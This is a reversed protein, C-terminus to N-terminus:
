FCTADFEVKIIDRLQLLEWGVTKQVKVLFNRSDLGTVIGGIKRNECEGFVTIEVELTNSFSARLRGFLEEQEEETDLRVQKETEREQQVSRERHQPIMMNSSEWIGNGSSKASM